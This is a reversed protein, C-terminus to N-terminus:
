QGDRRKSCITVQERCLGHWSELLWWLGKDESEAKTQNEQSALRFNMRKLINEPNFYVPAMSQSQSEDEKFFLQTRNKEYDELSLRKVLINKIVYFSMEPQFEMLIPLNNATSSNQPVLSYLKDIFRRQIEAGNITLWKQAERVFLQEGM